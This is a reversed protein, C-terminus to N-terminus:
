TQTVISSEKIYQPHAPEFSGGLVDHLWKEVNALYTDINAYRRFQHGEDPFSIYTVPKNLRKLQDFIQRSEQKTVIPDNDGQVILLPKEIQHAFNLPSRSALFERGAADDPSGGMSKIFAGRTFFLEDDSLPYVPFDWYKPVSQMVTILSSPGVIDVGVAYEKPTLALAALVCYGGYSGGLIGVRDKTTIKKDICWRVADALDDQARGGWEGNGANVLKKGLGSSLRFNVSLVAYGRSALWQHYPHYTWIDRVQFPGGHPVVILPLPKQLTEISGVQHPLTLYATLVLGDRTTFEFPLMDALFAHTSAAHLTTIQATDRDFLYFSAGIRKPEYTRLIWYKQSANVIQFSNGLKTQIADLSGDGLSHWKKKLWTTSYFAPKGNVFTVDAIDSRPDNALKVEDGNSLDIAKLWTTDSNRTDLYYLVSDELHLLRSHFADEADFHMFLANDKYIDISGNDHIEEKFIPSLQADFTFRSYKSNEFVRTLSGSALDLIFVDHYQPNRDNLGLAVQSGSLSFIKASAKFDKTHNKLEGSEINVSYLDYVKAGDTDQLFVIHKSDESWYYRYIEPVSFNTVQRLSKSDQCQKTPCVYINMVGAPDAKVYALWKSDPSVKVMMVDPPAFLVTRPIYQQDVTQAMAVNVGLQLTIFLMCTLIGVHSIKLQWNM